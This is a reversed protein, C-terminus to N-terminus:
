PAPQPGPGYDYTIDLPQQPLNTTSPTPDVAQPAPSAPGAPAVVPTTAPPSVSSSKAPTPSSPVSMAGVWILLAVFGLSVRLGWSSQWIAGRAWSEDASPEQAEEDGREERVPM